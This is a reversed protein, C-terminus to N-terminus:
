YACYPVVVLVVSSSLRPSTSSSIPILASRASLARQCAPFWTLVPCPFVVPEVARSAIVLSSVVIAVHALASRRWLLWACPTLLLPPPRSSPVMLSSNPWWRPLVGLPSFVCLACSSLSPLVSLDVGHALVLSPCRRGSAMASPLPSSCSPATRRVCGLRVSSCPSVVAQDVAVMAPVRADVLLLSVRM